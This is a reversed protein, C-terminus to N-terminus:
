LPLTLRFCKQFLAPRHELSLTANRARKRIPCIYRIHYRVSNFM